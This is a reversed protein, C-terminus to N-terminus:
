KNKVVAKKVKELKKIYTTIEENGEIDITRAGKISAIYKGKSLIIYPKGNKYKIRDESFGTKVKTLYFHDYTLYFKNNNGVTINVQNGNCTFNKIDEKDFLALGIFTNTYIPASSKTFYCNVKSGSKICVKGTMNRSRFIEMKIKKLEALLKDKNKELEKLLKEKEAKSLNKVNPITKLFYNLSLKVFRTEIISGNPTEYGKFELEFDKSKSIGEYYWTEKAIKNNRDIIYDVKENCSLRSFKELEEKDVQNVACSSFIIVGVLFLTLKKFVLKKFMKRDGFRKLNEL